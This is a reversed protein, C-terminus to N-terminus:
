GGLTSPNCAQAVAGPRLMLFKLFLDFIIKSGVDAELAITYSHDSPDEMGLLKNERPGRREFQLDFGM